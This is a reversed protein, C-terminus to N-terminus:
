AFSPRFFIRMEQKSCQLGLAAWVLIFLSDGRNALYFVAIIDTGLEPTFGQGGRSKLRLDRLRASCCSCGRRGLAGRRLCRRGERGRGRGDARRRFCSM